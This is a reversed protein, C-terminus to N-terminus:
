PIPVTLQLCTGGAAPRRIELQARMELARRRINKLGNGASRVDPDFGTGNDQITIQFRDKARNVKITVQTAHSHKITNHLTEKFIPMINRRFDLPLASAAFDGSPQFTHPIDVLMAKATEAMRAVLDSLREHKPDIFWVIDRLTDVTQGVISRIQRADEPAPHKEMVQALLAISGLNSGIDDHLDRAIRLRLRELGRLRAIRLSYLVFLLLGAVLGLLIRFWWTQWFYPQVSFALRAGTENWVGDNNCAQVVFQYSGPPLYSYSASHGPGGDVWDREAGRLRWRFQVKDPAVLSLATFKFEFYHRGASIQLPEAAPATLIQTRGPGPESEYVLQKDVWFEEIWVPPPLPNFPLQRPNIWVAGKVTTFWLRGDSGGWCNPQHGSSCEISPLGDLKGYSVFPLSPIENRDLQAFSEHDVRVIGGRTGLWLRGRRDQLIQSVHENPLGQLTSYRTFKGDQFRLLGGGLTGIWLAGANDAHLTLFREGGSLTGRGAPAASDPDAVAGALRTDPADDPRYGTFKGDRYARLEGVATGLWLTGAEDETIALVYAPAFGDAATFNKLRGNEWCYLGFENGIWMRGARDKFMARAVTGVAQSDFPRHLANTQLIWIGNQITGIWIRGGADPCVTSDMGMVKDAPLSWKTFEGDAWRLVSGGSTGFWLSGDINECVSNAARAVSSDGPWVAHIARRHICALGGGSLGVWVNGERDQFWCEILNSPLGQAPGIQALRGQADVHWLGAGWKMLWVGGQADPRIDLPRQTAPLNLHSLDASVTWKQDQWKLIQSGTWVWMGGDPASVLHAVNISAAGQAPMQRVFKEGDWRALERATGAWIAGERDKALATVPQTGLGPVAELLEVTQHRIRALQTNGRRYWIVGNRDECPNSGQFAGPPKLTEWRNTGDERHGYFLWGYTSAFIVENTQHAVLKEPWSDPTHPDDFEMQFRGHHRSLLTGEVVAVWLKGAPDVFLRHIELSPLEPTNGPHFTVFRVGDFRALGGLLTGIWLYGDPTQAISTVTSHPLGRDTDWVDVIYNDDPDHNDPPPTTAGTATNIWLLGAVGLSIQRWTFRFNLLL